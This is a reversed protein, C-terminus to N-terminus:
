RRVRGKTVDMRQRVVGAKRFCIALVVDHPIIPYQPMTIAVGRSRLKQRCYCPKPYPGKGLARFAGSSNQTLGGPFSPTKVKAGCAANFTSNYILGQGKM